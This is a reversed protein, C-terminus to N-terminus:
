FSYFLDKIATLVLAIM